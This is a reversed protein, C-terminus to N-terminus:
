VLLEILDDGFGFDDAGRGEGDDKGHRVRVVAVGVADVEVGDCVEHGRSDLFRNLLLDTNDLLEPATHKIIDQTSAVLTGRRSLHQHTLPHYPPIPRYVKELIHSLTSVKAAHSLQAWVLRFVDHHRYINELAYAHTKM